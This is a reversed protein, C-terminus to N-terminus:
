ELPIMPTDAKAMTWGGSPLVRTDLCDEKSLVVTLSDNDNIAGVANDAMVVLSLISEVFSAAVVLPPPSCGKQENGPSGDNIRVVLTSRPSLFISIM